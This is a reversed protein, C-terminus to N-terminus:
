KILPFRIAVRTSKFEPLIICLGTRPLLSIFVRQAIGVFKRIIAVHVERCTRHLLTPVTSTARVSKRGNSHSHSIQHVAEHSLETDYDNSPLNPHAVSNVSYNITLSRTKVIKRDKILFNSRYFNVHKRNLQAYHTRVLNV